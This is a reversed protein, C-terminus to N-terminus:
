FDGRELWVDGPKLNIIVDDLNFFKYVVLGLLLVIGVLGIWIFLDNVDVSYGIIGTLVLLIGVLGILMFAVPFRSIKGSNETSFQVKADTQSSPKGDKPIPVYQPIEKPATPPTLEDDTPM